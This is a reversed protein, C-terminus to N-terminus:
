RVNQKFLSYIQDIKRLLTEKAEREERLVLEECEALLAQVLCEQVLTM